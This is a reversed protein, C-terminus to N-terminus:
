KGEQANLGLAGLWDILEGTNRANSALCKVAARRIVADQRVHAGNTLAGDSLLPAYRM